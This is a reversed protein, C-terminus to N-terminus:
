KKLIGKLLDNVKGKKEKELRETLEKKKADVIGLKEQVLSQYQALQSEVAKKKEEVLRTVEDRKEAIKSDFKAKLDNQIKALEAGMVSTARQAIKDDLDTVFAIDFKGGSNWLRLSVVFENIGQLVERIIRELVGSSEGSFALTYHSLTLKTTADFSNGPVIINISSAMRADKLKANLFNASGLSFESLPVGSLTAAYEDFPTSKTRDFKARLTFSRGGGEVGELSVTLPVGTVTQDDSVNRIEGRAHIEEGTGASDTGGSVLAKQIWFKPFAQEVPFHINQGRMRPPTEYQPKSRYNKINTRAIDVWHLYTEARKVMEDGVLLRAIGTTNLNPLKALSKLHAFDAAAIDDIAGASATLSRVDAEISAKRTNFLSSIENVQKLGNDVTSIASMVAQVNNLQSTNIGRIGTEIETLRKKSQEFDTNLSNWQQSFALTQTKLSDLHKLTHIDLIKLLSDANVGGKLLGVNTLPTKEVANELAGQAMSSFSTGSTEEVPAPHAPKPLSGDTSRRTGLILENIEMTQVIFKGRLLQGFDMAFKVKGTEFTNRWPDNPNAVQLRAWEMGLPSLTLRLHDIEVKAGVASEGAAELGAEVWRDLFLYLVLLIVAFPILVFYVFKKRM